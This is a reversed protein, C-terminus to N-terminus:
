KGLRILKLYKLFFRNLNFHSFSIVTLVIIETFEYDHENRWNPWIMDSYFSDTKYQYIKHKDFVECFVSLRQLGVNFM